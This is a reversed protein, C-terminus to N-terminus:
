GMYIKSHLFSGGEAEAIDKRYLPQCDGHKDQYVKHVPLNTHGCILYKSHAVKRQTSCVSPKEQVSATKNMSGRYLEFAVCYAQKDGTEALVNLADEAQLYNGGHVAQKVQEVLESSKLNYLPSAVAMMRTDIQEDALVQSIGQATFDFMGGSAIIMGPYQPHKNQFDVPVKFGARDDVCVAYYVTDANADAVAIRAHKFGFGNMAMSLIKRGKEVADRGHTMEAVGATSALKKEFSMSEDTRESALEVMVPDIEQYTIGEITRESPTGRAAAAKAIIMDLDSITNRVGNKATSVLELFKYADVRFSKGATGTIHEQLSEKSLDTCGAQSLFITPILTTGARVEVPVLVSADGRPTEFTAKCIIIDEQGAVVDIKRPQVLTNLQHLCTRAANKAIVESYPKYNAKKDFVCELANALVPDAMKEYATEILSTGELESRQYAAPLPQKTQESTGLEDAFLEAFKNNRSYLGSYVERLEARTILQNNSESRRSLFNSMAVLTSDTPREQAARSARIALVGVPFKENDYVAKATKVM